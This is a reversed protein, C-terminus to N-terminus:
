DEAIMERYFEFTPAHYESREGEIKEFCWLAQRAYDAAQARDRNLQWELLAIQARILGLTEWHPDEFLTWYLERDAAGADLITREAHYARGLAKAPDQGEQAIRAEEMEITALEFRAEISEAAVLYPDPGADATDQSGTGCGTLVLTCAATVTLLQRIM